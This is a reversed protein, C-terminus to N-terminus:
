EADDSISSFDLIGCPIQHGGEGLPLHEGAPTTSSSESPRDPFDPTIVQLGLQVIREEALNVISSANSANSSINRQYILAADLDNESETSQIDFASVWKPRREDDLGYLINEMSSTKSGTSTLASSSRSLMNLSSNNRRIVSRTCRKKKEERHSTEGNPKLSAMSHHRELRASKFEMSFSSHTMPIYSCPECIQRCEATSWLSKYGYDLLYMEPYEVHPYRLENLVRDISRVAHAMTPGRKQSYECYFIPVRNQFSSAEGNEPFFIPKIKDHRFLNIAGKVHGGKYEFPFRCDVIIYKKDFDDGLRQFELLLTTPSISRFAQSERQPNDVGPLTYKVELTPPLESDIEGVSMARLIQKPREQFSGNGSTDSTKREFFMPPALDWLSTATRPAPQAFISTNQVQSNRVNSQEFVEDDEDGFPDDRPNNLGNYRCSKDSQPAVLSLNRSRKRDLLTVSPSMSSSTRKRHNDTPRESMVRKEYESHDLSDLDFVTKMKRGTPTDYNYFSSSRSSSVSSNRQLISVFNSCDTLAVRGSELKSFDVDEEPSADSKDSCSTMSVGSDRSSGDEEFLTKPSENIGNAVDVVNEIINVNNQDEYIAKEGTTAM